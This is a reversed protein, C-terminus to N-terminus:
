LNDPPKPPPKPRRRRRKRKPESKPEARFQVGFFPVALFLLYAPVLQM